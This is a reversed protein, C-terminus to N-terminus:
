PGPSTSGPPILNISVPPLPPDTSITARRNLALDNGFETTEGHGYLGEIFSEPIGPSTYSPNKLEKAVSYARKCSLHLNHQELGDMSAYADVRVAQDAGASNWRAVFDSIEIKATSTLKDSDISFLVNTEVNLLPSKTAHFCIEGFILDLPTSQKPETVRQVMGAATTQPSGGGRRQLVHTLEHAFLRRGGETGPRYQGDGFVVDNGTTYALANVSRAAKGAESGTHIRVQSFDHRFRPEFFRRESDPLPRGGGRPHQFDSGVAKAGPARKRQLEKECKSCVRQINPLIGAASDPMRMIQEAVRDAEQEFPDGPLNVTLKAQIVGERLLRQAAQNGM